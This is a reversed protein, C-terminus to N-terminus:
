SPKCDIHVGETATEELQPINDLLRIFLSFVLVMSTKNFLPELSLFLQKISFCHTGHALTLLSEKEEKVCEFIEFELSM